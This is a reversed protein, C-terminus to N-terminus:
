CSWLKERYRFISILATITINGGVKYISYSATQNAQRQSPLHRAKYTM